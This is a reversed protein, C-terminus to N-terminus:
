RRTVVTPSSVDFVRGKLRLLAVLATAKAAGDSTGGWVVQRGDRLVLGVEEPSGARVVAVQTRLSKPLGELVSLAARTAADSPGPHAVVLRVLGAPVSTATGLKTGTADYLTWSRGSGVAAVPERETVVVKLTRPWARSVSVSAVPGLAGIRSAVEGTDVRAMPTGTRVSAARLVQEATLRSEGSVVVKEVVLWSSGLLVWALLAFPAVAACAWAGRRLLVLRRARRQARAREKLRPGAPVVRPTM